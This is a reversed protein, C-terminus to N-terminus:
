MTPYVPLVAMKCLGGDGLGRRLLVYGKDGWKTGYSNKAIWYKDAGNQGYGVVTLCHRKEDICPGDYISGAKYMKFSTPDVAIGVAVPQQAVADAGVRQYQGYTRKYGTITAAHHSLKANDCQGIKGTYPYDVQSTIGGNSAIWELAIRPSNREMNPGACDVLQQESLPVLHGTKIYYASEVTAVAGFAWCTGLDGQDKVTTVAGQARWDVSVPLGNVEAEVSSLHKGRVVLQNRYDVKGPAKAPRGAAGGGILLLLVVLLPLMSAM